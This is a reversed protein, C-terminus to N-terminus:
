DAFQGDASLQDICDKGNMKCKSLEHQRYGNLSFNHRYEVISKEKVADKVKQGDAYYRYYNTIAYETEEKQAFVGTSLVICFLLLSRNNFKM